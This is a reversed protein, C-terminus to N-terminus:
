ILDSDRKDKNLNIFADDCCYVDEPVCFITPSDILERYAHDPRM